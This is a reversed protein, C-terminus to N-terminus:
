AAFAKMLRVALRSKHRDANNKHIMGKKAARDFHGSLDRYATTAEDKKKDTILSLLDKTLNKLETKTQRNRTRRTLNQRVRKAASISHPM